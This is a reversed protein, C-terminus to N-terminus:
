DQKLCPGPEVSTEEGHANSCCAAVPVSPTQPTIDISDLKIGLCPVAKSCNLSIAAESTATGNIRQFVVDSIQVGTDQEMCTGPVSCYNQDIIIPNYVSFIQLDEFTINRAYGKGTQWTKIRAGNTTGYFTSKSVHIDKVEVYNGSKGLSGVSIGHGPGCQVNNIEVDHTFDGISICDDGCSIKSYTIVVHESAHIHIGDTNPSDGPSQVTLNNINFGSCVFLQMHTQPSNVFHINNLTTNNCYMFKMASPALCTCGEMNPHDRCSQDWWKKGQGDIIGGGDVILGNVGNFSLWQSTDLGNWDPPSGPAVVTGSVLFVTHKSMCPGNFQVPKVLFTSGAPIIVQPSRHTNSSCADKWANLFAQSDDTMGDGKAGYDVVNFSKCSVRSSLSSILGLIFLFAFIDM